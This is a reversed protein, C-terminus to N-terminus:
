EGRGVWWDLLSQTDFLYGGRYGSSDEFAYVVEKLADLNTESGAAFALAELAKNSGLGGLLSAARARYQWSVTRDNLLGILQDITLDTESEAEQDPFLEEIPLPQDGLSAGNMYFRDIRDLATNITAIYQTYAPDKLMQRIEFYASRESESIALDALLALRNRMKLIKLQKRLEGLEGPQLGDNALTGDARGELSGSNASLVGSDLGHFKLFEPFLYYWSVALSAAFAVLAGVFAAGGGGRKPEELMRRPPQDPSTSPRSRPPVRGQNGDGKGVNEWESPKNTELSGSEKSKPNRTKGLFKTGGENEDDELVDDAFDIRTLGDGLNAKKSDPRKPSPSTLPRVTEQSPAGGVRPPALDMEPETAVGEPAGLVISDSGETPIIPQKNM